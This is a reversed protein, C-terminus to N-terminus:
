AANGAPILVRATNIGPGTYYETGYFFDDNYRTCEVRKKDVCGYQKGDFWCDSGGDCPPLKGDKTACEHKNNIETCWVEKGVTNKLQLQQARLASSARNQNPMLASASLLLLFCLASLSLLHM